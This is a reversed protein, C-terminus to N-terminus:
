ANGQFRKGNSKELMRSQINGYHTCSETEIIQTGLNGFSVQIMTQFLYRHRKIVTQIQRFM